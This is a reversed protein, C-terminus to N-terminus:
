QAREQQRKRWHGFLSRYASTRQKACTKCYRHSGRDRSGDLLHGKHCHTRKQHRSRGKAVMDRNNEAISGPWVHRPNCCRPNDCTHCGAADASMMIGNALSWAVRHARHYRGHICVMGYGRDNLMATWPWCADWERRDVKSWFRRAYGPDALKDSYDPNRRRM